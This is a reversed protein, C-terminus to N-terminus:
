LYLDSLIVLQIKAKAENLTESELWIQVNSKDQVSLEYMDDVTLTHHHVNTASLESHLNRSISNVDPNGQAQARISVYHQLVLSDSDM